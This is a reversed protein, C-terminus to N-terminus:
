WPTNCDCCELPTSLRTRRCVEPAAHRSLLMALCLRAALGRKRVAVSAQGRDSDNQSTSAELSASRRAPKARHAALGRRCTPSRGLPCVPFSQKGDRLISRRGGAASCHEQHLARQTRSHDHRRTNMLTLQQLLRWPRGAQLGQQVVLGALRLAMDEPCCPPRASPVLRFM